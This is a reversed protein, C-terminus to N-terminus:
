DIRDEIENVTVILFGENCFVKRVQDLTGGSGAYQEILLIVHDAHCDKTGAKMQRLITPFDDGLSPRIKVLVSNGWFESRRPGMHLTWGHVEYSINSDLEYNGAKLRELDRTSEERQKKLDYAEGRLKHLEKYNNCYFDLDDEHIELEKLRRECEPLRRDIASLESTARSIKPKVFEAGTKGVELETYKIAKLFATCFKEDLFRVTIKNQAPTESPEGFNNIVLQYIRQYKERFWDQGMLWELYGPDGRLAEVPKGKHKGFPITETIQDPMMDLISGGGGNQQESM